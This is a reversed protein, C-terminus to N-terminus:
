NIKLMRTAIYQYSMMSKIQIERIVDKQVHKNAIQIHIHM